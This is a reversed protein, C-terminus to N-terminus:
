ENSLIKRMSVASSPCGGQFQSSQLIDGRITNREVAMFGKRAFYSAATTTMLVLENLALEAASKELAAVLKDGIGSHQYEPSVAASRLLGSPTYIELGITGVIKGKVEAVLFNEIFQGLGDTSLNVTKLLNQIVPIDDKAAQRIKVQM